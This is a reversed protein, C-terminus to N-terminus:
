GGAAAASRRDRCAASVAPSSIVAGGTVMRGSAVMEAAVRTIVVCWTVLRGTVPASRCSIPM